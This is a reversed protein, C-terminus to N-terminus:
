ILRKHKKRANSTISKAGIITHNEQRPLPEVLMTKVIGEIYLRNILGVIGKRKPHPNASREQCIASNSSQISEWVVNPTIAHTQVWGLKRYYNWDDAPSWVPYLVDLLKRAAANTVLYAACSWGASFSRVRKYRTNKINTFGGRYARRVYSLQVVHSENAPIGQGLQQSINDELLERFDHALEVDDELIVAYPLNRDVILRYIHLHSLACGIEASSLKWGVQQMKHTDVHRQRDADTMERGNVAQIFEAQINQAQLQQEMHERREVAHALNIVFCPIM